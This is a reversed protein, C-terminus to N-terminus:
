SVQDGFRSPDEFFEKARQATREILVLRKPSIDIINLRNKIDEESFDGNHLQGIALHLFVASINRVGQFSLRVTSGRVLENKIAEYVRQGDEAAVCFEDGVIDHLSLLKDRGMPVISEWNNHATKTRKIQAIESLLRSAGLTEKWASTARTSISAESDAELVHSKLKGIFEVHRYFDAGLITAASVKACALAKESDQPEPSPIWKHGSNRNDFSLWKKPSPAGESCDKGHCKLILNYDAYAM